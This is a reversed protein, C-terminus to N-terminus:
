QQKLYPLLKDGYLVFDTQLLKLCTLLRNGYFWTTHITRCHISFLVSRRKSVMSARHTIGRRMRLSQRGSPGGIEKGAMDRSEQSEVSSSDSPKINSGRDSRNLTMGDEPIASRSPIQESDSPPLLPASLALGAPTKSWSKQAKKGGASGGGGSKGGGRGSDVGSDGPMGGIETYLGQTPSDFWSSDSPLDLWEQAHPTRRTPYPLAKVTLSPGGPPKLAAAIVNLKASSATQVYLPPVM